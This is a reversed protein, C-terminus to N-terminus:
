RWPGGWVLGIGHTYRNQFWIGHYRISVISTRDERGFPGIELGIDLGPSMWGTVLGLGHWPGFGGIKFMTNAFIRAGSGLPFVLGASPSVTFGWHIGSDRDPDYAEGGAFLSAELGVTTYPMLSASVFASGGVASSSDSGTEWAGDEWSFFLSFGITNRHANRMRAERESGRPTRPQRPPPPLAAIRRDRERGPPVTLLIALEAMLYAGDAIVQYTRYYGTLQRGDRVDLVQATFMNEAGLSRAGIALALNANFAQGLSAAGVDTTYGWMQFGMERQAAEIASTRPLVVYNGTRIIEIALIKALTEADHASIRAVDLPLIALNPLGSTDRFSTAVMSRAMSPLFGRVEEITSYTRHYGAVQQFSEVHIIKAIVLNRDGLR